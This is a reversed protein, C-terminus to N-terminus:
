VSSNFIITSTWINTRSPLSSSPSVPRTTKGIFQSDRRTERGIHRHRQHGLSSILVLTPSMAFLDISAKRQGVAHASKTRTRIRPASERSAHGRRLIRHWSHSHRRRRSQGHRVRTHLADEVARLLFRQNIRCCVIHRRRQRRECDFTRSLPCSFDKVKLWPGNVANSVDIHINRPASQNNSRSVLTTHGLPERLAYRGILRVGSINYQHKLDFIAFADRNQTCRWFTGNSALRSVFTVNVISGM